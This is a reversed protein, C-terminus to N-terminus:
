LMGISNINGFPVRSSLNECYNYLTLYHRIVALNSESNLLKYDTSTGSNRGQLYSSIVTEEVEGDMEREREGEREYIYVCICVCMYICVFVHVCICACM